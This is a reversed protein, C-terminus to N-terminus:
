LRLRRVGSKSRGKEMRARDRHQGHSGRFIIKPRRLGKVIDPNNTIQPHRQFLPHSLIENLVDTKTVPIRGPSHTQRFEAIDRARQLINAVIEKESMSEDLLRSIGDLERESLRFEKAM